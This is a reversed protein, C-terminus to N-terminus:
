VHMLLQSHISFAAFDRLIREGSNQLAALKDPLGTALLKGGRKAFRGGIMVTDVNVTGAQMVVCGVVDHMPVMNMDDARLLVIDAQKGPTLSGIRRDLGAVTAAGTTVWSLADRCTLPLKRWASPSSSLSRPKRLVPPTNSSSKMSLKM